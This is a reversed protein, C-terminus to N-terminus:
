DNPDALETADLVNGALSTQSVAAPSKDAVKARINGSNFPSPSTAANDTVPSLAPRAPIPKYAM